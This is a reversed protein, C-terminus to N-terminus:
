RGDAVPRIKRVKLRWENLTEKPTADIVSILNKAENPDNKLDFLYESADSTKIWYKWLHQEDRKDLLGIEDFQQFYSFDAEKAEQLPVGRWSTPQTIQLERLITPAIDIQSVSKSAKRFPEPSYGFSTLLLPIRIAPEVVGHAHRFQGREGLEEGHDATVVLLANRMYGKKSLSEVIQRIVEDAFVVGNDYYNVAQQVNKRDFTPAIYNEVPVFPKVNQQRTGLPHVSMLHFQFMTPRSDAEPLENVKEVIWRDDNMFWKKIESGDVYQDVDGYTKRLGYFNVHDGGLIFRTVYGNKRLAEQITFPAPAFDHLYRSSALSTLGCSSESCAARASDVVRTSASRALESLFPTTNRGYGYVGMNTPRLADVVILVLNPRLQPPDKIYKQRAFDHEAQVQETGHSEFTVDAGLRPDHRFFTLGLPERYVPNPIVFTGIGVVTVFGFAIALGRQLVKRPVNIVLIKPWSSIRHFWWILLFLSFYAVVGLTALLAFSYGLASALDPAQLAYSAILEWSVVQGWSRLGILVIPYYIAFWFIVTTHLLACAVRLPLSILTNNMAVVVRSSWIMMLMGCMVILHPAIAFLPVAPHRTYFFLFVIVCLLWTVAEAVAYRFERFLPASVLM